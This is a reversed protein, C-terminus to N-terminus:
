PRNRDCVAASLAPRGAKRVRASLGHGRVAASRGRGAIMNRNVYVQRRFLRDIVRRSRDDIRSHIGVDARLLRPPEISPCCAISGTPMFLAGCAPDPRVVEEDASRMPWKSSIRRWTFQRRSGKGSFACASRKENSCTPRWGSREKAEDDIV